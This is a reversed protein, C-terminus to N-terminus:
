SEVNILSIDVSKMAAAVLPIIELFPLQQTKQVLRTIGDFQGMGRAHDIETSVRFTFSYTSIRSLLASANQVQQSIEQFFEALQDCIDVIEDHLIKADCAGPFNRQEFQEKADFLVYNHINDSISQLITEPMHGAVRYTGISGIKFLERILKLLERQLRIM